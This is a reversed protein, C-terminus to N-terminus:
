LRIYNTDLLYEFGLGKRHLDHVSDCPKEFAFDSVHLRGRVPGLAAQSQHHISVPKGKFVLKGKVSTVQSLTLPLCIYKKFSPTRDSKINRMM